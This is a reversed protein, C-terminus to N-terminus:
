YYYQGDEGESHFQSSNTMAPSILSPNVWMEQDLVRPSVELGAAYRAVPAVFRPTHHDQRHLQGYSQQRHMHTQPYPQEPQQHTPPLMHEDYYDQFIVPQGLGVMQSSPGSLPGKPPQQFGYSLLEPSASGCDSSGQYSEGADSEVSSSAKSSTKQGARKHRMGAGVPANGGVCIQRQKHRNLADMRSFGKGCGCVFDKGTGHIRSHRVLDHRRVFGAACFTCRFPRDALHTQIHSQINYKRGFRRMCGGYLCVYKGDVPDPGTMLSSMTEAPIQTRRTKSPPVKDNITHTHADEDITTVQWSFQPSTPPSPLTQHQQYMYQTDYFSSYSGADQYSATQNM